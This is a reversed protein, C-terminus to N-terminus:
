IIFIAGIFWKYPSIIHTGSTDELPALTSSINEHNTQEAEETAPPASRLAAARPENKNQLKEKGQTHHQHQSRQKLKEKERRQMHEQEAENTELVQKLYSWWPIPYNHKTADTNKHYMVCVNINGSCTYSEFEGEGLRYKNGKEVDEKHNLKEIFHYMADKWDGGRGDDELCKKTVNDWTAEMQKEGRRDEQGTGWGQNESAGLDNKNKGCLKKSNPDGGNLPLGGHGVTCLCLMDHPASHGPWRAQNGRHYPNERPEGCSFIRSADESKYATPLANRLIELNGGSENGFITRHLATKLPESLESGGNRWKSVVAQLLDCLAAHADKNHDTETEQAGVGVAMMIMVFWIKMLMM